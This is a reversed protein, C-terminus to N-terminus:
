DGVSIHVLDYREALLRAQTGKGSGQVGMIVYKRMAAGQCVNANVVCRSRPRPGHPDSRGRHVVRRLQSWRAMAGCRVPTWLPRTARTATADPAAISTAASTTSTM